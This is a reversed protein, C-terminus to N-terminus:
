KVIGSFGMFALSLLGAVTLAIPVGRMREPVDNLELSERIGSFIILALTFGLANSVAFVVSQTLNYEKQIVLIAVGLIACNTTILPLFVGLAQYLAPSVKRLVLEVMQVLSAIVLIYTITQLYGIGLPVLIYQQILYTVITALTMVFLVAGGMGTATSLKNSVGLFPCIGLFQTLVINNVFVASIIILIIKM